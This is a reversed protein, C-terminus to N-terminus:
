FGRTFKSWNHYLGVEVKLFKPNLGKSCLCHTKWKHSSRTSFDMLV